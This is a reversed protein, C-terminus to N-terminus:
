GKRYQNYESIGLWILPISAVVAIIGAFLDQNYISIIGAILLIAGTIYHLLLKGKTDKM